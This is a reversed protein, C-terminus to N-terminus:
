KLRKAKATIHQIDIKYMRVADGNSEVKKPVMSIGEPNYKEIFKVFANLKEECYLQRCNGFLIVSEYMTSFLEPQVMTEGVVTFSVKDSLELNDIKHGSKGCHFFVANEDECYVYSLPVTYPYGDASVTGLIGWTCKDLIKKGEEISITRDKRRPERFM